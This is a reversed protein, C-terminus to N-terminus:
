FAGGFFIANLFLRNSGYWFARFNPDDMLLIVRGQGFRRAVVAASGPAAALKEKSVYGSLVARFSYVGVNTGPEESPEYFTNGSRFVPLTEGLGYALPHTADFTVEFIAGGIVQAGRADSLQDYPLDRVLSDLDFPKKKLNALENRVAWDVANALAILRGGGRVWAKIKEAPLPGYSGGALIITDYRRLDSSGVRDADLLTIPIHFRETLLHWAEGTNYSSAGTGTILAIDPADLVRGGPGGLDPGVPTLGGDVAFIEVADEAVAREAIEHLGAVAGSREVAPIIVSGAPFSQPQGDVMATFADTMVRPHAGATEFRYLARPAYYRNWRMVYAVNSTDGVLRGGGRTVETVPVGLLSGPNRRVEAYDVDFALPLTWASVDYFLSDEFTRVREMVAKVLRTQPQDLPIIFAEGARYTRGEAEVDRALEYLRIRHRLLLKALADARTRAPTRSVVYAKVLLSKAVDPADRYFDRQHRLLRERMNVAAKLTSLSTMFHNRITFAYDLVGDVVERKLARSSAQEFLIGIAGNVDPYTSGKGYYFDDFSEESYYLSGIRDLAEGHYKAIEATLEQNRAPTNPNTRSPIGPQFFYTANGGMEHHDTLIQPRWRHFVALRGQSEPHQAPLWDRNLDFWYHNTRGGPWPEVHERDQPDATAVAGRNQNVWTTFRNRGDPNFMPDLIVVVHELADEVAPGRGAALHYLYLVAAETGSAENGHISYGQYIVAPMERLDEDSVSGPAESLRLNARRLDELRAQNAPSTVYAHILPRGEYTRAHEELTVRDSVAAVARFYAIVQHPETHKTGIRHGIVEEPTPIAPDYGTVGPTPAPLPFPLMQAFLAHPAVFLLGAALLAARFSLPSPM